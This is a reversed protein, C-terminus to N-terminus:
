STGNIVNRAVALLRSSIRLNSRKAPELAIDFRVRDDIVIFNIISGSPDFDEWETITLTSQMRAEALIAALDRDQSRTIFLVHIGEISDGAQLRRVDVLREGVRRGTVIEELNAAIRGDGLIGIVLPSAPDAFVVEPWEVYECFRYLYAAKIRYETLQELNQAASILPLLLAAALVFGLGAKAPRLFAV